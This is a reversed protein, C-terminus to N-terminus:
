LFPPKEVYGDMAHLYAGNEDFVLTVKDCIPEVSELWAKWLSAKKLRFTLMQFIKWVDSAGVAHITSYKAHM